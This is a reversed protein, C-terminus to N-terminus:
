FSINQVQKFFKLFNKVEGVNRLFFEANTRRRRNTVLVTIGRSKLALFADEDTRDDGIYIPLLEENPDVMNLILNVAKGKDWDVNPRIEWVKKGETIRILGSAVYPRVIGNFNKKVRAVEGPAVLRYHLSATLGKNELILGSFHGLEKQLRGCIKSIVPRTIKAEPLVFTIGPGSIELGHNGAYYLKRLSVLRKLEKLSRGSIVAVKFEGSLFNLMKKMEPDLVARDPKEAIPALTGDYDFLWFINKARSLSDFGSLLHKM